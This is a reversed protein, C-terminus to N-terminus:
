QWLSFSIAPRSSVKTSARSSPIKKASDAKINSYKALREQMEKEIEGDYSTKLVAPMFSVRGVEEREEFVTRLCNDKSGTLTTPINLRLSCGSAIKQELEFFFGLPYGLESRGRDYKILPDIVKEWKRYKQHCSLSRKM